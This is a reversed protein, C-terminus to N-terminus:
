RAAARRTPLAGLDAVEGHDALHLVIRVPPDGADAIMALPAPMELSGAIDDDRTVGDLRRAQQQVGRGATIGVAEGVGDPSTPRLRMTCAFWATQPM